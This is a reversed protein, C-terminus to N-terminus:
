KGVVPLLLEITSGRVLAIALIPSRCFTWNNNMRRNAFENRRHLNLTPICEAHESLVSGHMSCGGLYMKPVVLLVRIYILDLFWNNRRMSYDTGNRRLNHISNWLKNVMQKRLLGPEFVISYLWRFDGDSNGKITNRRIFNRSFILVTGLARFDVSLTIEKKKKQRHYGIEILNPM